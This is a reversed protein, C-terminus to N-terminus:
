RTGADRPRRRHRNDGVGDRIVPPTLGDYLDCHLVGDALLDPLLGARTLVDDVWARDAAGLAVLARQMQEWAWARYPHTAYATEVGRIAARATKEGAADALASARSWPLWTAAVFVLLRELTAPLGAAPDLWDGFRTRGIAGQTDGLEEIEELWDCVRPGHREFATTWHPDRFGHAWLQGALAFDAVSPREGLLYGLDALHADLLELLEVVQRDLDPRVADDIGLYADFGTQRGRIVQTVAELAVGPMGYTFYRAIRRGFTERSQESGWRCHMSLRIVYEDAFDELLDHVFGLRPDPPLTAPEPHRAELWRTMPTSDQLVTDDPALVVPIIPFGVLRRIEQEYHAVTTRMRRYPIRKYRLFARMKASYPSTRDEWMRYAAPADAPLDRQRAIEDAKRADNAHVIPDSM